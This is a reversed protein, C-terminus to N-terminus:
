LISYLCAAASVRLVSLPINKLLPRLYLLSLLILLHILVPTVRQELCGTIGTGTPFHDDCAAAAEEKVRKVLDSDSNQRRLPKLVRGEAPTNLDCPVSSQQFAREEADAEAMLIRITGLAQSLCYGDHTM